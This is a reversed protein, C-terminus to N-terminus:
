SHHRQTRVGCPFSPFVHDYVEGRWIVVARTGSGRKVLIDIHMFYWCGPIDRWSTPMSISYILISVFWQNIFKARWPFFGSNKSVTYWHTLNLHTFM